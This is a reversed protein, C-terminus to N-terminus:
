AVLVVHAGQVECALMGTSGEAAAPIGAMVVYRRVMPVRLLLMVMLSLVDLTRLLPPCRRKGMLM